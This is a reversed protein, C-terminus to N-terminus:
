VGGEHEDPEYEKHTQDNIWGGLAMCFGVCLLGALVMNWMFFVIGAGALLLILVVAAKISNM